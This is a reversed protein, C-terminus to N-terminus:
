PAAAPLAMTEHKVTKLRAYDLLAAQIDEPYKFTCAAGIEDRAPAVGYHALAVRRAPGPGCTPLDLLVKGDRREALGYIYVAAERYIFVMLDRGPEGPLAVFMMQTVKDDGTDTIAYWGDTQLRVEIRNTRGDAVAAQAGLALPHVAQSAEFLPKESIYCGALALGAVIMALFAGAARM